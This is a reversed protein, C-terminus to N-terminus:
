TTWINKIWPAPRAFRYWKGTKGEIAEDPHPHGHFVIIKALDPVSPASWLSRPFYHMCHRKFSRCWIEPWYSLANKKLLAASLYEQENRYTRKISAFNNQFETLVDPHEGINFRYVSSNGTGDKKLWDRIIIVSGPLSFLEDIPAVIILDLDLFLTQGQFDYLSAGFTALKTWGREPGSLDLGISPIPFIEVEGRIGDSDDTFCAFRMPLTINRRVMAFLRNVYEPGYKTGWKMCIVNIM